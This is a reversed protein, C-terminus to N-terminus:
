LISTQCQFLYDPRLKTGILTDSYRMIMLHLTHGSIHTPKDVHQELGMSALLDLFLVADSDRVVDVHINFDGTIFLPESSMIVTELYNLFEELFVCTTVPHVASYPTRYIIIVRLRNSDYQVLWESFELSLVEGRDIDRADVNDNFLM